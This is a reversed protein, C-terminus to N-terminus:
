PPVWQRSNPPPGPLLGPLPSHLCIQLKLVLLTLLPFRSFTPSLPLASVGGPFGPGESLSSELRSINWGDWTIRQPGHTDLPGVYGDRERGIPSKWARPDRNMITWQYLYDTERRAFGVEEVEGVKEKPFSINFYSGKHIISAYTPTQTIKWSPLRFIKIILKILDSTWKVYCSQILFRFLSPSSKSQM